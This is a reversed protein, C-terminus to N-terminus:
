TVEDVLGDDDIFEVGWCDICDDFVVDNDVAGKFEEEINFGDSMDEEVFVKGDFFDDYVWYDTPAYFGFILFFFPFFDLNVVFFFGVAVVGLGVM